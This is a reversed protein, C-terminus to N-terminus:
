KDLWVDEFRYGNYSSNKMITINKVYPQWCTAQRAHYLIPRAVDEQLEKDIEWVLKKRKAVDTEVSQEDFKKQLEKNCYRTYNRQSGCAYNEYFAQDPDDIGNGTLNLGIQYDNRAIKGFWAGTEVVDLDADIYIDKLQDILIVAPDRYVALNRTSVKLKLHKDPGYGAKKMYARAQERNKKVDPGYGPIDKLMDPPLGWVGDPPPLLAGGEAANGEFLIDIFAKRDLSLALAKRVNEDNFPATDRNIILNTNVNIPELDCIAQPAQKKVDKLL